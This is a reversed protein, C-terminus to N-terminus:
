GKSGKKSGKEASPYRFKVPLNYLMSVKKGSMTGPIFELMEVVRIVEKNAEESLGRLIRINKTKGMTDIEFNAFVTGQVSDKPYNINQALFDLLGDSGGNKYIPMTENVMGFIEGEGEEIRQKQNLSDATTTQAFLSEAFSSLGIAMLAGAVFRRVSSSIPKQQVQSKSFIGCITGQEQLSETLESIDRNRFDIVEKDCSSCFKGRACPAMKDLDKDCQLSFSIKEIPTM